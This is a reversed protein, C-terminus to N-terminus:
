HSNLSSMRSLKVKLCTTVENSGLSWMVKDREAVCVTMEPWSKTETFFNKFSVSIFNIPIFLPTGASYPAQEVACGEKLLWVTWIVGWAMQESWAISEFEWSFSRRESLESDPMPSSLMSFLGQLYINKIKNKGILFDIHFETLSIWIKLCKEHHNVQDVFQYIWVKSADKIRKKKIFIYIYNLCRSGSILGASSKLSWYLNGQIVIRVVRHRKRDTGFSCGHTM